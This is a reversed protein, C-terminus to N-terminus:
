TLDEAAAKLTAQKLKTLGTAADTPESLTYPGTQMLKRVTETNIGM